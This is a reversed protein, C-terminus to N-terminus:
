GPEFVFPYEFTGTTSGARFSWTRVVAVVCSEMDRSGITSKSVAVESVKGDRGVTFRVVVEGSTTPDNALGIVYCGSIKQRTDRAQAKVARPITGRTGRVDSSARASTTTPRQRRRIGEAIEEITSGPKLELLQAKLEDSWGKSPTSIATEIATRQSESLEAATPGFERRARQRVRVGEAIEEITSGPKLALMQAKLEDSWEEPATAMAAEWVLREHDAEIRAAEEAAVKAATADVDSDTTDCSPLVAVLAASLLVAALLRSRARMRRANGGIARRIRLALDSEAAAFANLM